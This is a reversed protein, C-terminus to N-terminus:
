RSDHGTRAYHLESSSALLSPLSVAPFLIQLVAGCLAHPSDNKAKLRGSIRSLLTECLHAGPSWLPPNKRRLPSFCIFSLRLSNWSKSAALSYKIPTYSPFLLWFHYNRLVDVTNYYKDKSYSCFIPTPMCIKPKSLVPCCVDDQLVTRHISFEFNTDYFFLWLNSRCCRPGVAV